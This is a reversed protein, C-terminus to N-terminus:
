ILIECLSSLETQDALPYFNKKNFEEFPDLNKIDFNLKKRNSYPVLQDISLDAKNTELIKEKYNIISKISSM